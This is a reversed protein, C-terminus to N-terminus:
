WVNGVYNPPPGNQHDLRDIFSQLGTQDVSFANANEWTLEQQPCVVPQVPQNNLHYAPNCWRVDFAPQPPRPVYQQVPPPPPLQIQQPIVALPYQPQQYPQGGDAPTDWMPNSALLSSDLMQFQFNALPNSPANMVPIVPQASPPPVYVPQPVGGRRPQQQINNLQLQQLLQAVQNTNQQQQMQYQQMIQQVLTVLQQNQNNVPNQYLMQPNQMVGNLNQQQLMAQIQQVLMPNVMQNQPQCMMMPNMMGVPYGKRMMKMMDKYMLYEPPYRSAKDDRVFKMVAMGSGALTALSSVLTGIPM